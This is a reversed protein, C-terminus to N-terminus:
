REEENSSPSLIKRTTQKFKLKKERYKVTTYPGHQGPRQQGHSLRDAVSREHAVGGDGDHATLLIEM